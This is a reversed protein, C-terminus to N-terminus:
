RYWVELTWTAPANETGSKYQNIEVTTDTFLLATFNGSTAMGVVKNKEVAKEIAGRSIILSNTSVWSGTTYVLLNLENYNEPLTLANKATTTGWYKWEINSSLESISNNVLSDLLLM